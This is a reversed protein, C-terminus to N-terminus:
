SINNPLMCALTKEVGLKVLDEGDKREHIQEMTLTM